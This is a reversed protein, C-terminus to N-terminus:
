RSGLLRTRNAMGPDLAEAGHVSSSSPTQGPRVYGCGSARNSPVIQGHGVWPCLARLPRCDAEVHDHSVLCVDDGLREVRHRGVDARPHDHVGAGVVPSLSENAVVHVPEANRTLEVFARPAVETVVAGLRQGQGLTLAVVNPHDVGVVQQHAFGIERAQAGVDVPHTVHAVGVAVIARLQEAVAHPHLPHADSMLGRHPIEGAAHLRAQLAIVVDLITLATGAVQRPLLIRAVAIQQQGLNLAVGRVRPRDEIQGLAIVVKAIEGVRALPIRPTGLHAAPLLLGVVRHPPDRHRHALEVLRPRVHAIGIQPGPLKPRGSGFRQKGDCGPVAGVPAVLEAVLEGLAGCIDREGFLVHQKDAGVDVVPAYGVFLRHAGGPDALVGLRERQPPPQQGSGVERLVLALPDRFVAVDARRRHDLRRGRIGVRLQQSGHRTM